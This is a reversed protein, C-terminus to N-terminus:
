QHEYMPFLVTMLFGRIKSSAKTFIRVNRNQVERLMMKVKKASFGYVAINMCNTEDHTFSHIGWQNQVDHFLGSPAMGRESHRGNLLYTLTKLYIRILTDCSSNDGVSGFVQSNQCRLVVPLFDPSYQHSLRVKFAEVYM